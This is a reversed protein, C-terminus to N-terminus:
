KKAKKKSAVVKFGVPTPEDAPSPGNGSSKKAVESWGGTSVNAKNELPTSPAKEAVGRDALKKRRVFEAAFHRGDM